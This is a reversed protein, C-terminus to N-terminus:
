NGNYSTTGPLISHGTREKVTGKFEIFIDEPKKRTLTSMRKIAFVFRDIPTAMFNAADTVLEDMLEHANLEAVPKRWQGNIFEMERRFKM